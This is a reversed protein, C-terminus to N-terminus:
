GVVRAACWGTLTIVLVNRDDALMTPSSLRAVIARDETREVALWSTRDMCALANVIANDLSREIGYHQQLVALVEPTLPDRASLDDEVMM